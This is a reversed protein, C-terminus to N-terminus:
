KLNFPQIENSGAHVDATLGSTKANSYRSGLKDKGMDADGGITSTAEPWVVTVAYKGAPAGDEASYTSLTFTGDEAVEATSCRANPDPDDLPHFVVLARAAPKGAVLVKGHVPYVSKRKEGGCGVAVLILPALLLRVLPPPPWVVLSAQM